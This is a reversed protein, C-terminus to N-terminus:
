KKNNMLGPADGLAAQQIGMYGEAVIRVLIDLGCV